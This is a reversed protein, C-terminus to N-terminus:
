KQWVYVLPDQLTGATVSVASAQSVDAATALEAPAANSESPLQERAMAQELEALAQADIEGANLPASSLTQAASDVAIAPAEVQLPALYRGLALTNTLLKADADTTLRVLLGNANVSLVEMRQVLALDELYAQVQKFAAFTRIGDVRLVIAQPGQTTPMIAYQSAFHDAARDIASAFLGKVEPTEDAFAPNEGNHLLLWDGLWPGQPPAAVLASAGALGADAASSAAVSSAALSSSMFATNDALAAPDLVLAPPIPGLSSPSYRGVLIADAKYRLSAAKIKERDLAWLDEASIALNDEVDQKPFTLPLGRYAAHANIAAMDALEPVLHLGSQDKFVLWVLLKPRQAPWLPLQAERLLQEIALPEYDLQLALATFNRGNEVLKETSSKYSFGFLYNQANAMAARIVPNELANRRGSVRVMVEGFTARAAANREAEAQSKVLAQARYIDVKQGAFVASPLLLLLSSLVVPLFASLLRPLLSLRVLDLGQYCGVLPIPRCQLLSLGVGPLRM